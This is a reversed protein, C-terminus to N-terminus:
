AQASLELNTGGGADVGRWAISASTFYFSRISRELNELLRTAKTINDEISVSIPIAELGAIPSVAGSSSPSLAEPQLGSLLFIQNMSSLLAEGNQFAPLADPIVRLSSCMKLM